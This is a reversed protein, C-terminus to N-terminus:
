AVRGDTLWAALRDNEFWRGGIPEGSEDSGNEYYAAQSTGAECFKADDHGFKVSVYRWREADSGNGIIAHGDVEVRSVFEGVVDVMGSIGHFGETGDSYVHHSYITTM